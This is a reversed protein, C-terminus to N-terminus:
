AKWYPHPPVQAPEHRTGLSTVPLTVATGLMSAPGKWHFASSNTSSTFYPASGPVCNRDQQSETQRRHNRWM